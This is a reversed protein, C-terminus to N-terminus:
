RVGSRRASSSPTSRRSIAMVEPIASAASTAGAPAKAKGSTPPMETTTLRASPSFHSRQQCTSGSTPSLLACGVSQRRQASTTSAAGHATEVEGDQIPLQEAEAEADQDSDDDGILDGLGDNERHHLRMGEPNGNQRDESQDGCP